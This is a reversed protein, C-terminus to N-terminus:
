WDQIDVNIFSGRQTLLLGIEFGVLEFVWSFIATLKACEMELKSKEVRRKSMFAIIPFSVETVNIRIVTDEGCRYNTTQM